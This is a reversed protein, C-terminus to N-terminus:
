SMQPHSELQREHTHGDTHECLNEFMFIESVLLDIEILNVLGNKISIQGEELPLEVYLNAKIPWATKSFSELIINIYM